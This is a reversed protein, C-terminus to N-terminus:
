SRRMCAIESASLRMMSASQRLVGSLASCIMEVTPGSFPQAGAVTFVSIVRSSFFGPGGTDFDHDAELFDFIGGFVLALLLFLFGVACVALFVPFASVQPLFDM